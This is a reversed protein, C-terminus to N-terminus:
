YYWQTKGVKKGMNYQSKGVLEGENNYQFSAGNRKGNVYTSVFNKVGNSHYSIKPGEVVGKEYVKEEFLSGDNRYQYGRQHAIQIANG